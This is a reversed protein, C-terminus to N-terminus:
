EFLYERLEDVTKLYVDSNERMFAEIEPVDYAWGAAVIKVGAARAMDYGPKLDDVVVIDDASLNYKKMLQEIAYASPKRQEPPCEWGFIDDPLPLGNAEYDRKINFDFSHSVVAVIGGRRKQEEIIEKIGDFATPIHGEVYNKWIGVERELEEDTFYYKEQLYEIFGPAFNFRFYENLDEPAYWKEDDKSCESMENKEPVWLKGSPNKMVEPRMAKMAELYAPYHINATSDVVTDDHDLVLCKYM